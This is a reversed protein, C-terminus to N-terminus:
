EKCLLRSQVILRVGTDQTCTSLTVMRDEIGLTVGTAVVSVSLMKRQWDYYDKVDAFHLTFTDSGEAANHISCIEYLQDSEPTFIWFYRSNQLTELDMLERLKAFMSGDRMNHGYIITNYNLFNPSNYADMFVSGAYLYEQNIDRHLYYDNDVAQLVPYSIELSPIYIWAVVDRNKEQLEDWRVAIKEPADNPIQREIPQWIRKEQLKSEEKQSMNGVVMADHEGLGVATKGEEHSPMTYEDRLESYEQRGKEYGQYVNLGYGAGTLLLLCPLATKITGKVSRM